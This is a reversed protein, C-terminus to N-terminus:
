RQFSKFLRRDYGVAEAASLAKEISSETLVPSRSLIWGFDLRPSGVLVWSYLNEANKEGLALIWYDGNGIGLWELLSIGTFNVKLKANNSGSVPKANARAVELGSKRYCSNKVGLKGNPLPSYEATTNLCPGDDRSPENEQFRNEIRRIEYWLGFYSDLEVRNVTPIDTKQGTACSTFAITMAIAFSIRTYALGMM